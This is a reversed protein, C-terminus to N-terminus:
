RSFPLLLVHAAALKSVPGKRDIQAQKCRQLEANRTKLEQIEQDRKQLEEDKEQLARNRKRITAKKAVIKAKLCDREQKSM